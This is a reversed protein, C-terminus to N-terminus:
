GREDQGLNGRPRPWPMLRGMTGILRVYRTIRGYRRAVQSRWTISWPLPPDGILLEKGSSEHCPLRRRACGAEDPPWPVRSTSVELPDRPWTHLPGVEQLANMPTNEVVPGSAKTDGEDLYSILKYLRRLDMRREPSASLMRGRPCNTADRPTLKVEAEKTQKRGHDDETTTFPPPPPPTVLFRSPCPYPLPPSRQSTPM